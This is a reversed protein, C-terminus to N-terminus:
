KKLCEYLESASIQGSGDTDIAMFSARLEGVENVSAMKVMMNTLTKKLSSNGKYEKLRNILGDSLLSTQDETESFKKFWAHQVAKSADLRRDSNVELLKNILDKCEDSM